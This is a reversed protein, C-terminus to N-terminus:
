SVGGKPTTKCKASLRLKGGNQALIENIKTWRASDVKWIVKRDKDDILLIETLGQLTPTVPTVIKPRDSPKIKNPNVETNDIATTANTTVVKTTPYTVKVFQEKKAEPSDLITATGVVSPQTKFTVDDGFLSSLASVMASARKDALGKNNFGTNSGVASAGGQVYVVFPKQLNKNAVSNSISNKISKFEESNTNINYKGTPFLSAADIRAEVFKVTADKGPTGTGGMEGENLRQNVVTNVLNTLESESVLFKKEM